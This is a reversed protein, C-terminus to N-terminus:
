RIRVFLGALSFHSDQNYWHSFRPSCLKLSKGSTETLLQPSGNPWCNEKEWRQLGVTFQRCRQACGWVECV